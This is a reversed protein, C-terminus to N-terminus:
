QNARRLKNPPSQRGLITVTTGCIPFEPNLLFRWGVTQMGHIFLLAKRSSDRGGDRIRCARSWPARLGAEYHSLARARGDCWPARKETASVKLRAFMCLDESLRLVPNAHPSRPLLLDLHGLRRDLRAWLNLVVRALGTHLLWADVVRNSCVKLGHPLHPPAPDIRGQPMAYPRRCSAAPLPPRRYPLCTTRLTTTSTYISITCVLITANGSRKM